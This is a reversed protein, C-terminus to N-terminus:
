PFFNPLPLLHQSHYILDEHFLPPQLLLSYNREYSALMNESLFLNEELEKLTLYQMVTIQSNLFRQYFSFHLLKIPQHTIALFLHSLIEYSANKM